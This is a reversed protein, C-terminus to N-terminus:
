IGNHKAGIKIMKQLLEHMCGSCLTTVGLNDSSGIGIEFYAKANNSGCGHCFKHKTTKAKRLKVAM